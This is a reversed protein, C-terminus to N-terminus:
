LRQTRWAKKTTNIWRVAVVVLMAAVPDDVEFHVMTGSQQGRRINEVPRGAPLDRGAPSDRHLSCGEDEGSLPSLNVTLRSENLPLVQESATSIRM